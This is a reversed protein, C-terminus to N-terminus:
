HQFQNNWNLSSAAMSLLAIVTQESSITKDQHQMAIMTAADEDVHCALFWAKVIHQEADETSKLDEATLSDEPVGPGAFLALQKIQKM